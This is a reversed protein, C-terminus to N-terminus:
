PTITLLSASNREARRHLYPLVNQNIHAKFCSIVLPDKNTVVKTLYTQISESDYSYYIPYKRTSFTDEVKLIRGTQSFDTLRFM